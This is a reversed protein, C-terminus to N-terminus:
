AECDRIRSRGRQHSDPEVIRKGGPSTIDVGSLNVPEHSPPIIVSIAPEFLMLKDPAVSSGPAVHVNENLTVAANPWASQGVKAM